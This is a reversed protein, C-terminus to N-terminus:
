YTDIIHKNIAITGCEACSLKPQCCSSMADHEKWGIRYDSVYSSGTPKPRGPIKRACKELTSCIASLAWCSGNFRKPVVIVFAPSMCRSTDSRPGRTRNFLLIGNIVNLQTKRKKRWCVCLLHANVPVPVSSARRVFPFQIFPISSSPYSFSVYELLLRIHFLFFPKSDVYLVTGCM